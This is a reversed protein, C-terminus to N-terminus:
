CLFKIGPRPENVQNPNKIVQPRLPRIGAEVTVNLRLPRIVGFLLLILVRAFSNSEQGLNM